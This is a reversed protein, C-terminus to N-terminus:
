KANSYTDNHLLGLILFFLVGRNSLITTDAISEFSITILIILGVIYKDINRIHNIEKFRKYIFYFFFFAGIVGFQALNPYFTDAVFMPNSPECGWIQWLDYKYYLPSYFVGSANNSFTAFGSGFPFYDQFIKFSTIYFLPRLIESGEKTGEIFYFNFKDWIVFKVLFLAIIGIFFIVKINFINVKKHLLLLISSFTYVSFFKSRTSFLGLSLISFSQMDRKGKLYYLLCFLSVALSSLLTIHGGMFSTTSITHPLACITILAALICVNILIKKQKKNFQPKLYTTCYFVMFPKIQQQFDYLIAKVSTIGINISYVLYFIVIIIFFFFEKSFQKHTKLRLLYTYLCLIAVLLEDIFKIHLIEYFLLGLLILLSIFITYLKETM